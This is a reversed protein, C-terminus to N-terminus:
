RLRRVAGDAPRGARQPQATTTPPWGVSPLRVRRLRRHAAAPAAHWLRHQRQGLLDQQRRPVRDPQRASARPARTVPGLGGAPPRLRLAGPGCPGSGTACQTCVYGLATDPTHDAHKDWDADRVGSCELDCHLGGVQNENQNFGTGDATPGCGRNNTVFFGSGVCSAQLRYIAAIDAYGESSNSLAHNADNADLGHGWEHDFVAAIEGTNGCGGGSRFFNVTTGDWFANCTQLINVNAQLRSRLWVNDPLWGRAQEALKNLEYFASRSAPTNGPGGGDGTMCDHQGNVGGLDLDGTESSANIAGCTDVIDVFPGTLTTSMPVGTFDYVGASNTLNNPAPLGTDAFPMPWGPQMEGCTEPASCQGTNTLPYVGGTVQRNEYLNKDRFAIVEGSIADVLTEWRAEEPPRQFTTSYVLRHAYGRGVRGTYPEDARTGAPAVTVIELTPTQLIKDRPSRGGAYAFASDMAKEGALRARAPLVVTGWGETGFVVVNGHSITLALRADRVTIGAVV